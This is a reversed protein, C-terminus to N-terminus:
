LLDSDHVFKMLIFRWHIPIGKPGDDVRREVVKRSLISFGDQQSIELLLGQPFHCCSEAQTFVGGPHAHVAGEVFQPSHQGLSTISHDALKMDCIRYSIPWSLGTPVGAM